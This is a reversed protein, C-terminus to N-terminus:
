LLRDTVDICSGIYGQFENNEDFFPTGKDFVWGYEGNDRHLRYEM